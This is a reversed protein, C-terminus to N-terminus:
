LKGPREPTNQWEPTLDVERKQIELKQERKQNTYARLKDAVSMLEAALEDEKYSYFALTTSKEAMGEIKKIVERLDIQNSHNKKGSKKRDRCPKCRKPLQFNKNRGQMDRFFQLESEHMEFDENCDVCKGM